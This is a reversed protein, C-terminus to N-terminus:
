ITSLPPLNEYITRVTPILELFNMFRHGGSKFVTVQCDTASFYKLAKGYDLLEDDQNLFIFLNEPNISKAPHYLKKIQETYENCWAVLEPEDSDIINRDRPDTDGIPDVTPNLLIAPFGYEQHLHLAYFGGLSSGVLLIKPKEETQPQSNRILIEIAKFPELPLDPAVVKKDRLQERLIRAKTAQGSSGFGHCYIIM